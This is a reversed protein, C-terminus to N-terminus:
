DRKGLLDDIVLCVQEVNARLATLKDRSLSANPQAGATRLEHELRQAQDAITWSGIARASGCLTHLLETYRQATDPNDAMLTQVISKAQRGFLHLLEVELDKDGLTQRSLHVLDISPQADAADGLEAAFFARRSNLTPSVSSLIRM